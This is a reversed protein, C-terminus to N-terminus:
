YHDRKVAKQSYTLVPASPLSADDVQLSLTDGTRGTQLLQNHLRNPYPAEDWIQLLNLVGAGASPEKSTASMMGSFM